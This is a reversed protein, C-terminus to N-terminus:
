NFIKEPYLEKDDNLMYLWYLCNENGNLSTEIKKILFLVSNKILDTIDNELSFFYSEKNFKEESIEGITPSAHIISDRYL